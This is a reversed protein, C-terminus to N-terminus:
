TPLMLRTGPFILNPDGTKIAKANMNWIDVLKANIETGSASPGVISAAISWLSDGPHVVVSGTGAMSGKDMSSSKTKMSTLSAPRTLPAGRDVIKVVKVRQGRSGVAIATYAVGPSFDVGKTNFFTPDGPKMLSPKMASLRHMGPPISYYGTARTYPLHGALTHSDIMFMPAGLEPAAHIMRLLSTKATASSSKYVHLMVGSGTPNDVIVIDYDGNGVSSTGSALVKSGGKLTWRFSGARVGAYKTVQGFGIAGVTQEGDGSKIQVTATGVGPVAHIFRVLSKALAQAPWLLWICFGLVLPAFSGSRLSYRRM